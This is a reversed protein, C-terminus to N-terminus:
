SILALFEQFKVPDSDKMVKMKELLAKMSVGTGRTRSVGPTWSNIASQAAEADNGYTRCVRQADIVISAVAKSLVVDEGWMLKAEELDEPVRLTVSGSFKTGDEDKGSYSVEQDKAM